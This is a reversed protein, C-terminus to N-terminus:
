SAPSSTSSRARTSRRRRRASRGRARSRSCSCSSIPWTSASPRTRDRPLRAGRRRVRQRRDRGAGAERRLRHLGRDRARERGRRHPRQGPRRLEAGGRALVRVLGLANAGRVPAARARRDGAAPERRCRSRARASSRAASSSCWRPWRRRRRSRSASAAAARRISGPGSWRRRSARAWGASAAAPVGERPLRVAAREPQAHRGRAGADVPRGRHAPPCCRRCSSRRAARRGSRSRTTAPRVAAPAFTLEALRGRRGSAEAGGVAAAAEVATLHQRLLGPQPRGARINEIRFPTGTM